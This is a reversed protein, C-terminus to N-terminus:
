EESLTRAVTAKAIGGINKNYKFRRRATSLSCGLYNAIDKFSLAERDPYKEDLRDLNVRFLPKERPM